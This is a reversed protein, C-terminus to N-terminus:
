IYTADPGWIRSASGFRRWRTKRFPLVCRPAMAAPHTPRSPVHGVPPKAHEPAPAAAQPLAPIALYADKIAAVWQSPHLTNKITNLSPMLYPLKALFQPDNSKLQANLTDINARATQVD